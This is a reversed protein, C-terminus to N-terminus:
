NTLRSATPARNTARFQGPPEGTAACFADSFNSPRSFGLRYAIEKLPLDTQLLYNQAKAIQMAKLYHGISQNTHERFLKAFYRESLGCAQAIASVSPAEGNLAELYDDIIRLHRSSLRGRRQRPEQSLMAHSWEVLMAQGLSDAVARSVFGPQMAETMLRTFMAPLLSSQVDLCNRLQSRSLCDLSAGVVRECYARDFSCSVVRMKGAGGRGLVERDPPTFIVRGVKSLKRATDDLFAGEALHGSEFMLLCMTPADLKSVVETTGTLAGESVAIHTTPTQLTAIHTLMQEGLERVRSRVSKCFVLRKESVISYLLLTADALTLRSNQGRFPAM